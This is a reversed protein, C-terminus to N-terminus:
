LEHPRFLCAKAKPAELSNMFDSVDQNSLYGHRGRIRQKPGFSLDSNLLLQEDHYPQIMLFDSNEAAGKVAEPIYGADCIWVLKQDSAKFSFVVGVPDYGDHPLSFSDVSLSNFQIVEGTCFLSTQEENRAIWSNVNSLGERTGENMFVRIGPHRCLSELGRSHAKHEQTLFVADLDNLSSGNRELAKELEGGLMGADILM